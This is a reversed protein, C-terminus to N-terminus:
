EYWIIGYRKNPDIEFCMLVQLSSEPLFYMLLDRWIHNSFVLNGWIKWALCLVVNCSSFQECVFFSRKKKWMFKRRKELPSFHLSINSYNDYLSICKGESLFSFNCDSSKKFHLLSNKLGFPIWNECWNHLPDLM